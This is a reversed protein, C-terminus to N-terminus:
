GKGEVITKDDPNDPDNIVTLSFMPNNNVEQVAENPDEDYHTDYLDGVTDRYANLLIVSAKLKNQHSADENKMIESATKISDAVLPKLKRLLTLFERERLQRNNLMQPKKIQGLQNINPDIM